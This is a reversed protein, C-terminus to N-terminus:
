QYGTPSSWLGLPVAHSRHRLSATPSSFVCGRRYLPDGGGAHHDMHGVELIPFTDRPEHLWDFAHEGAHAFTQTSEPYVPLPRSHIASYIPHSTSTTRCGQLDRPSHTSVHPVERIHACDPEGIFPDFETRTTKTMQRVSPDNLAGKCPYAARTAHLALSSCRLYLPMVSTSRNRKNTRHFYNQPNGPVSLSEQQNWLLRTGRNRALAADRQPMGAALMQACLTRVLGADSQRKRRQKGGLAEGRQLWRWVSRASMGLRGAIEKDAM